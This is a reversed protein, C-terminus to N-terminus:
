DVKKTQKRDSAIAGDGPQLGRDRGVPLLGLFYIDPPRALHPYEDVAFERIGALVQELHLSRSSKGVRSTREFIAFEGQRQFGAIVLDRYRDRVVEESPSQHQAQGVGLSNVQGCLSWDAPQWFLSSSGERGRRM